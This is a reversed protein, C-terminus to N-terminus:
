REEGTNTTEQRAPMVVPLLRRRRLTPNMTENVGEGVLTLGTVLLVIALGPFLGTWWVGSGADALARNLDHGWEAADTSQIGLGLFGLGALTLIADAANLTGLVPVSQIVNGFLYRRMIVGDKAGMARAAEVYAAEKASVTTNRVVRFYQPVYIATLSLAVALVSGGFLDTLLFSFVIALLFSPFAFIADMILLLVRDMWGGYYGSILGLPVGILVCFVISLVVVEIATRAGWITRSLVDFFLRDTGFWHDSSPAGAKPFRVGDASAQAFGYPAIWPAFIALILFVATIVIGIVLMWRALGATQTFPRTMGKLVARM